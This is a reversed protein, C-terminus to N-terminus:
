HILSGINILKLEAAVRREIMKIKGRLVCTNQGPCARKKFLCESLEFDGQFITILKLLTINRPEEDLLFGGGAGKYSSLIGAKNLKQLLKRLFPRPIKLAEVLDSAAIIKEKSRAIFCLARVAYDTDRTMLKM